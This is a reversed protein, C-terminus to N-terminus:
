AGPRGWTKCFRPRCPRPRSWLDNSVPRVEITEPDCGDPAYEASAIQHGRVLPEQIKKQSTPPHPVVLHGSSLDVQPTRHNPCDPFMGDRVRISERIRNAVNGDPAGIHCPGKWHEWLEVVTEDDRHPDIPLQTAM